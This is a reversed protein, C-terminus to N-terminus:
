NNRFSSRSLSLLHQDQIFRNPVRFCKIANAAQGELLNHENQFVAALESTEAKNKLYVVFLQQQSYVTLM